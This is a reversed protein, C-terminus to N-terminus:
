APSAVSSCPVSQLSSPPSPNLFLRALLLIHRSPSAYTHTHQPTHTTHTYMGVSAVAAALQDDNLGPPLARLPPNCFGPLVGDVVMAMLRSFCRGDQM